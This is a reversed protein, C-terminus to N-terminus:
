PNNARTVANRSPDENIIKGVTERIPNLKRAVAKVGVEIGNLFGKTAVHVIGLQYLDVALGRFALLAVARSLAKTALFFFDNAIGVRCVYRGAIDLTLIERHPHLHASESAQRIREALLNLIVGSGNRNVQHVIVVNPNM